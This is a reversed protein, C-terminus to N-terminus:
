RSLSVRSPVTSIKDRYMTKANIPVYSRLQVMAEEGLDISEPNSAVAESLTADFTARCGPSRRSDRQHLRDVASGRCSPSQFPPRDNIVGFGSAWRSHNQHVRKSANGRRHADGVGPDTRSEKVSGGSCPGGSLQRSLPRSPPRDVIVRSSSSWRLHLRQKVASERENAAETEARAIVRSGSSWRLHLRKKVASERENVAETEATAITLSSDDSLGGAHNTETGVSLSASELSLSQYGQEHEFEDSDSM